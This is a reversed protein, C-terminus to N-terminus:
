EEAAITRASESLRGTRSCEKAREIDLVTSWWSPHQLFMVVDGEVTRELAALFERAGLCRSEGLYHFKEGYTAEAVSMFYYLEGLPHIGHRTWLSPRWRGNVKFLDTGDIGSLWVGHAFAITIKPFFRRLWELNRRFMKRATRVNGHATVLDEHQYQIEGGLKVIRRLPVLLEEDTACFTRINYTSAFGYAAETEAMEEALWNDSPSEIDHIWIVRVRNPVQLRGRDFLQLAKSAQVVSYKPKKLERCLKRYEHVQLHQNLKM